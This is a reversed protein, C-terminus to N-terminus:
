DGTDGGPTAATEIERLRARVELGARRGENNLEYHVRGNTVVHTLLGRDTLMRASRWQGPGHPRWVPENLMEVLQAAMGETLGDLLHWRPCHVPCYDRGNRLAPTGDRKVNFRWGVAKAAAVMDALSEGSTTVTCGPQDCSARFSTPEIV